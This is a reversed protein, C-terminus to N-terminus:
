LIKVFRMQLYRTKDGAVYYELINLGRYKGKSGKFELWIHIFNIVSNDLEIDLQQNETGRRLYINYRYHEKTEFRRTISDSM